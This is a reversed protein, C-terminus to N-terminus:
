KECHKRCGCSRSASTSSRGSDSRTCIVRAASSDCLIHLRSPVGLQELLQRTRIGLVAAKVIRYFEHGGLREITFSVSRRMETDAAWDNDTLVDLVGPARHYKDDWSEEAYQLMYRALRHLRAWHMETPTSMGSMIEHMAFQVSPQDIAIHLATRTARRLLEVRDYPLVDTANRMNKGTAKSAPTSSGRSEPPLGMNHCAM